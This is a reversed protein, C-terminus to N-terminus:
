ATLDLIFDYWMNANLVSAYAKGILEVADTDVGLKRAAYNIIAGDINQNGFLAALVCLSERPALMLADGSLERIAM